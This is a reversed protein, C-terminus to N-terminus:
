GPLPAPLAERPGALSVGVEEATRLCVFFLEQRADVLETLKTTELSCGADVEVAGESISSVRVRVDERRVKPHAAIREDLLMVFRALETERTGQVVRLKCVFRTRDRASLSEIRMDALKGNPIVVLSRDATRIRTSRLGVTEVSGEIGDVRITDGVRFPQDVLISISGFLHELTKQAALAIAISGIGLGTIISGVPYGLEGLVTVAGLVGVVFRGVKLSFTSFGRLSPRNRGWDSELVSGGFSAVVRLFFWFLAVLAAARLGRVVLADAPQYLGLFRTGGYIVPLACALRAPGKMGERLEPSWSLKARRVLYGAVGIAVFGLPRAVLASLFGLLVLAGAHWVLFAGPLERFFFPSLKSRVWREGLEEYLGDILSVTQASFVWRPEEDSSRAEKRVIRIPVLKGDKTRIRGIEDVNAPLGDDKKGAAHPSLEGPDIWLKRALVVDLMRALEPGKPADAKSLELYAAAEAFRGENVAALFRTMSARPSDFAVADDDDALPPVKASSSAVPTPVKVQARASAPAAALAVFLAVLALLAHAWPPGLRRPMKSRM